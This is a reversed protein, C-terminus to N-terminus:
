RFFGLTMTTVSASAITLIFTERPWHGHLSIATQSFAPRRHLPPPAVSDKGVAKVKELESNSGHHIFVRDLHSKSM